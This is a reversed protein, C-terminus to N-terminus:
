FLYPVYFAQMWALEFSLQMIPNDEKNKKNKVKEFRKNITCSKKRNHM